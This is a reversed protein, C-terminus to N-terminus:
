GRAAAPHPPPRGGRADCNYLHRPKIWGPATRLKAKGGNTSSKAATIELRAVGLGSEGNSLLPHGGRAGGSLLPQGGRAPGCSLHPRGVPTDGCSLGLESFTSLVRTNLQLVGHEAGCRRARHGGAAGKDEGTGARRSPGTGPLSVRRPPRAGLPSACRPPHAGPPSTRPFCRGPAPSSSGLAVLPACPSSERPSVRAPRRHAGRTTALEGGM